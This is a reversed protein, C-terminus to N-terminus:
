AAIEGEKLQSFVQLQDKNEFGMGRQASSKRGAVRKPKLQMSSSNPINQGNNRAAIPIDHNHKGEYTTVM